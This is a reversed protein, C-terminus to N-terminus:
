NFKQLEESQVQLNENAQSLSEVLVNQEGLSQALKINSYSLQSIMNALKMLFTM